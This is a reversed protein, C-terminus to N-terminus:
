TFSVENGNGGIKEGLVDWRVTGVATRLASNQSQVGLHFGVAGREVPRSSSTIFEAVKPSAGLFHEARSWISLTVTGM